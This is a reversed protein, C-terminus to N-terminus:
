RVEHKCIPCLVRNGIKWGASKARITLLKRSIRLAEANHYFGYYTVTVGCSDCKYGSFLGM